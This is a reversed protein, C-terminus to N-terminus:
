LQQGGTVCLVEGTVFRSQLLYLVASTIDEPSGIRHLPNREALGAFDSESGGPPPLIAGPAVANVRIRPGLEVALLKTAAILGAKAITYALHGPQPRLGRWDVINVIAGHQEAPLQAAFERSLWVPALLNIDLHRDWQDPETSHLTGPEFIAASNVLIDIPGLGHQAAALVEEAGSVPEAGFDAQVALGQVGLAALEAVTERAADTSQSYHICVDAGEAALRLAIARGLRVAGGTIVAHRGALPLEPVLIPRPSPRVRCQWCHGAIADGPGYVLRWSKVASGLLGGGVGRRAGAEAGGRVEWAGSAAPVARDEESKFTVFFCHTYGQNLREPSNNTGWEFSQIVEIKKPLAAFATEVGKIQEPTTDAKFKFLVVHRLLKPPAATPEAQNPNWVALAGLAIALTVPLLLRPM